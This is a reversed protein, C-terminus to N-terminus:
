STLASDAKSQRIPIRIYFTTGRGAESDFSLTGGHTDVIIERSIALGLGTGVGVPKTTFGPSFIRARDEPKIGRGSDAIAIEICDDAVQRTSVVIKGEGDIAQGANVLINLFVRSILQPYCEVEPLEAFNTEVAVRKRFECGSLKLADRILTHIDVKRLDGEDVRAFTKLSRIVSSIRECAIKDVAALTTVTDLVDMVKASPPACNKQADGLNRKLGDLARIVVENNSLISGIPTNIEHVVGAVLRGLSVMKYSEALQKRAADLQRELSDIQQKLQEVGAGDSNM